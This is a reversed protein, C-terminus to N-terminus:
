RKSKVMINCNIFYVIVVFKQIKHMCTHISLWMDLDLKQM